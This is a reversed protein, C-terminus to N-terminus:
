HTLMLELGKYSLSSETGDSEEPELFLSLTEENRIEYPREEHRTSRHNDCLFIDCGLYEMEESFIASDRTDHDEDHCEHDYEKESLYGCLDESYPKVVIYSEHDGRDILDEHPYEERNGDHYLEEHTDHCPDCSPFELHV